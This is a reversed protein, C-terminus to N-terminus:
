LEVCVRRGTPGGLEQLEDQTEGAKGQSTETDGAQDELEALPKAWLSKEKGAGCGAEKTAGPM